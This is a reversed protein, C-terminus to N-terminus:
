EPKLQTVVSFETSIPTQCSVHIFLLHPPQSTTAGLPYRPSVACEEQFLM